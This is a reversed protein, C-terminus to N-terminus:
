GMPARAEVTRDRGALDPRVRVDVFGLTTLMEVVVAGQGMGIELFLMGGPRLAMPADAIVLRIHDLGDEGGDLAQRPEWDRVHRPLAAYEGTTVYPLNAVIVALSEPEAVDCLEGERFDIRDLVGHRGANEAALAIAEGSVDVALIRSEPRALALSVAICGSGTGVDAALVPGDEWARACDLVREVLLETEPRPILARRDVKFPRGMFDWEGLIYQVPEGAAARKMGRRMASLKKEGLEESGRFHLDPPNCGLLRCMLLDATRRPEEAARGALFEAAANVIGRVSRDAPETM